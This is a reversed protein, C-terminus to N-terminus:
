SEITSEKVPRCVEASIYEKPRNIPVHHLPIRSIMFLPDHLKLAGVSNHESVLFSALM